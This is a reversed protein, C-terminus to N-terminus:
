CKQCKQDTKANKTLKPVKPMKASKASKANEVNKANEILKPMKKDTEASKANKILKPVKPMKPMTSSSSQNTNIENILTFLDQSMIDLNQNVYETIKYTEEREKDFPNMNEWISEDFLKEFDDLVKELVKQKNDTEDLFANIENQIIKAENIKDNLLMVRQDLQHVEKVQGNFKKTCNDLDKTWKDIIG